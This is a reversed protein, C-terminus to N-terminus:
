SAPHKVPLKNQLYKLIQMKDFKGKIAQLKRADAADYYRQRLSTKGLHTILGWREWRYFTPMSIGLMEAIQWGYLRKNDKMGGM